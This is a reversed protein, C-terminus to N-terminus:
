GVDVKGPCPSLFFPVLIEIKLASFRSLTHIKLYTSATPLYVGLRSLYIYILGNM